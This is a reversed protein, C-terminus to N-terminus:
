FGMAGLFAREFAPTGSLPYPKLRDFLGHLASEGEPDLLFRCVGSLAGEPVFLAKDVMIEPVMAVRKLASVSLSFGFAGTMVLAGPDGPSLGAKELLCLVGGHVAAKALQFQRLDRQDLLVECSADRFLRIARGDPTEVLYRALNTEVELPSLIQGGADILGADLGAAIASVLGSGCLGRAPAHGITEVRLRDGEVEVRTVAGPSASMGCRIEAGEFAPGAAVSTTLWRDEFCLAMEANTGVDIYLTPAEDETRSFLFAVLDGGVYGSVLPFLFLPFDLAFEPAWGEVWRGFSEAPRHPPLLLRTGDLGLLLHTIASNAAAAGRCVASLPLRAEECLQTALAEIGQLILHRLASEKGQGAAELRRIVDSGYEAQPNLLKGRCLVSGDSALLAGALTTTGLDLALSVQVSAM